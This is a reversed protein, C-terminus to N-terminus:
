SLQALRDPIKLRRSTVSGYGEIVIHDQHINVKCFANEGAEAELMAEVVVFHVGEVCRYGGIHDHGSLM